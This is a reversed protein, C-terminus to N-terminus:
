ILQDQAISTLKSIKEDLYENILLDLKISDSIYNSSSPGSQAYLESLNIRLNMIEMLLKNNEDQSYKITGMM